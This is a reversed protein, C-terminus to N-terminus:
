SAFEGSIGGSGALVEKYVAVMRRTYQTWTFRNAHALARNRRAHWGMPDDRRELLLESIANTWEPVNGASCYVTCDGGVERLAALDSAVVPTGCAMAEVVPLGFGERQSPLMVVAARRYVAALVRRDLYPLVLLSDKLQLGEAIAQQADTLPGGVHVLRVAPFRKKVRAFVALLIDIRKRAGTTGVHLLYSESACSEGLLRGAEVDASLDPEASCSPHFGLPVVSLQEKQVLQHALLAQYTAVSPCVVRAAMRLGRLTRRAMARFLASRKAKPELLCRFTETDHCTVIAREPPLELVLQAYSHDILHFIDFARRYGRLFRPYDWFRNLFRDANFRFQFDASGAATFRRLMPPRIRQADIGAASSGELQALLMDGVLDMSPWHEEVLDCIVGLRVRSPVIIASTSDLIQSAPM